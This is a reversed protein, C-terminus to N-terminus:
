VEKDLEVTTSIKLGLIKLLAKNGWNTSKQEKKMEEAQANTLSPVTFIYETPCILKEFKINHTKEIDEVYLVLKDKMPALVAANGSIKFILKAVNNLM